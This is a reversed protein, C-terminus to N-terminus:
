VRFLSLRGELEQRQKELKTTGVYILRMECVYMHGSKVSKEDSNKLFITFTSLHRQLPKWADDELQPQLETEALRLCAPMRPSGSGRIEARHCSALLAIRTGLRWEAYRGGEACTGHADM